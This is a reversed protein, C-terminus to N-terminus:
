AAGRQRRPPAELTEAAANTARLMAALEDAPLPRAFFHGQLEDCGWSKLVEAQDATEVGEAIVGIGLERGMAIAARVVAASGRDHSAQAIFTQAIKIRDVPCRRLYDLSSYGTGFDDIALRIGRQRLRLLLDNHRLSVDMLVAETVEVEFLHAPLGTEALAATVDREFEAARKFQAASVNVAVTIAPLGADLWAKGQRCAERQTARDLGVILGTREALPVFEAPMLVGRTPHRWRVLAEVGAIRGTKGDVRPQYVLFMQGTDIATRLEASMTASAEVDSEMADTFVRYGGRGAAKAHYLAVDARSLLEESSARPDSVAIGISAGSCVDSGSLRFPRAIAAILKAALDAADSPDDIANAIVAFEDGGFRAVLDTKRATATLRDGVECLLQDGVPHGLTDNIEKFRDLDVYLVAFARGGREARANADAVAEMFTRRNALGTLVDHRATHRAQVEARRRLTIDRFFFVRGLNAGDRTRLAASHRDIVRGDTTEIEDQSVQDPNAFLHDVREMYTDLDKVQGRLTTAIAAQDWKDIVDQPINWLRGFNENVRMMNRDADIVLMADQSTEMVTSMLTNALELKREEARRESVDLAVAIVAPEGRHTTLRGQILVNLFVGDIRRLKVALEIGSRKGAVLDAVATRVAPLDDAAIFDGMKMRAADNGAPDLGLMELFRPNIYAVSGDRMALAIGAIGNEAIGRLTLERERSKAESVRFDAALKELDHNVADRELVLRINQTIRRHAGHAALAQVGVFAAFIMGMAKPVFGGKDLMSLLMPASAPLVFAYFAPLYESNRMTAGASLGGVVFAAFMVDVPDDTIFVTAALVGWLCGTLGAGITSGLAYRRVERANRPPARRYQRQWVIRGAIVATLMVFWAVLWELPYIPSLVDAAVVAVVINIPLIWTSGFLLRAQEAFIAAKMADAPAEHADDAVGGSKILQEM